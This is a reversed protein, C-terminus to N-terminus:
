EKRVSTVVDFLVTNSYATLVEVDNEYDESDDHYRDRKLNMAMTMSVMFLLILALRMDM